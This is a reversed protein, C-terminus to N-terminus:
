SRIASTDAAFGTGINELGFFSAEIGSRRQPDFWYGGTIRGGSRWDKNVSSNGFLM